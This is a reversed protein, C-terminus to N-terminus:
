RINLLDNDYFLNNEKTPKYIKTESCKKGHCTSVLDCCELAKKCSIKNNFSFCDDGKRYNSIWENCKAVNGGNLAYACTINGFLIPKFDEKKKSVLVLVIINIILLLSILFVITIDQLRM